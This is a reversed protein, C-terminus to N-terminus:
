WFSSKYTPKAGVMAADLAKFALQAMYKSEAEIQTAGESSFLMRLSEWHESDVTLVMLDRISEENRWM